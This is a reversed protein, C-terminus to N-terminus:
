IVPPTGSLRDTEEGEGPLRSAHTGGLVAHALAGKGEGRGVAAAGAGHAAGEWGVGLVSPPCPETVHRPGGLSAPGWGGVCARGEQSCFGVALKGEEWPSM